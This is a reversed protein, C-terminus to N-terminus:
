ELSNPGAPPNGREDNKQQVREAVQVVEDVIFSNREDDRLVHEVSVPRDVVRLVSMDFAVGVEDM